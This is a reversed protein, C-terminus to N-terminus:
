QPIRSAHHYVMLWDGAKKEFINTALNTRSHSAGSKDRSTAQEIGSVWAISGNVNIRPHEMSVKLESFSGFTEEFRKKVADWGVAAAKSTPGINQINADSSWVKQMAGIDRASLAAYFAQNAAKVPEMDSAHQAVASGGAFAVGLFVLAAGMKPLLSHRNM